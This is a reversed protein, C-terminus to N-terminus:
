ESKEISVTGVLVLKDAANLEAIQEVVANFKGAESRYVYDAHDRRVMPRNTPISVVELKYIKHLEEAETQATGTMGSLKDYLRFFNQFTITGLTKNEREVRVGEKAEISQHLGESYRRGYMKRGTFEDIIIVQGNEVIYDRDKKFIIEAKMANDLY